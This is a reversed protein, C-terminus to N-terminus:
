GNLQELVTYVFRRKYAIWWATQRHMNQPWKSLEETIKGPLGDYEQIKPFPTEEGFLWNWYEKIANDPSVDDAIPVSMSELAEFVRFSDPIVAGSPAPAVKSRSFHTYYTEHDLGQTFGHTTNVLTNEHHTTYENLNDLMSMRRKHTIQGSFFVDLSKEVSKFTPLIDQSQPPYGTGLKNYKDHRGPHPNQIWAHISPHDIEEVPFDAEEDGLLFLVVHDINSLERNVEKVLQAHHRAPLAVLARNTKPLHSTTLIDFGEWNPPQWMNGELFDLLFGADWQDAVSAQPNLSLLFAKPQSM